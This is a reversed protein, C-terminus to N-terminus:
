IKEQRIYERIAYAQFEEQMKEASEKIPIWVLEHDKEIKLYNTDFLKAIYFHGILKLYENRKISKTYNSLRGIYKLIELNYGIEESCERKLCEEYTEGSEAGGGPLFYNNDRKVLAIKYDSNLILAYAGIRERYKIGDTKNGCEIEQIFM